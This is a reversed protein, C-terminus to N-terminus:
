RKIISVMDSEVERDDVVVVVVCVLQSEIQSWKETM